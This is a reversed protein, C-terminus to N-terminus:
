EGTITYFQGLPLLQESNNYNANSWNFHALCQNSHIRMLKDTNIQTQRAYTELSEDNSYSDQNDWLPLEDFEEIIDSRQSNSYSQTETKDPHLKYKNFSKNFVNWQIENGGLVKLVNHGYSLAYLIQSFRLNKTDGSLKLIVPQTDEYLRKLEHRRSSGHCLSKYRNYFIGSVRMAQEYEQINDIELPKNMPFTM